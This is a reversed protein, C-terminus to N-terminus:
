AAVASFYRLISPLCDVRRQGAGSIVGEAKSKGRQGQEKSLTQGQLRVTREWCLGPQLGSCSPFRSHGLVVVAHKHWLSHHILFFMQFGPPAIRGRRSDQSARLGRGGGPAATHFHRNNFPAAQGWGLKHSSILKQCVKYTARSARSPGFGLIWTKGGRKGGCAEGLSLKETSHDKRM